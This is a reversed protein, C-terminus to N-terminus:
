KLTSCKEMAKDEANEGFFELNYQEKGFAYIPATKKCLAYPTEVGNFTRSYRVVTTDYGCSVLFATLIIYKM